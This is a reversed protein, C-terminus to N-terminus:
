NRTGIRAYICVVKCVAGASDAARPNQGIGVQLASPRTGPLGPPITFRNRIIRYEPRAPNM